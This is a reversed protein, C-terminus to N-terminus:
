CRRDGGREYADAGRLRGASRARGALEGPEAPRTRRGAAGLGADAARIALITSKVGAHSPLASAASTGVCARGLSAPAHAKSLGLMNRCSVLSRGVTVRGETVRGVAIGAEPGVRKAWSTLREPPWPDDPAAHSEPMHDDITPHQGKRGRPRPHAAVIEGGRPVAATSSTVKVDPPPEAM